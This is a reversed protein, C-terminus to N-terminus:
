HTGWIRPQLSLDLSPAFGGTGIRKSVPAIHFNLNFFIVYIIDAVTTGALLIRTSSKITEMRKLAALTIVNAFIGETCNFLSIFDLKIFPPRNPGHSFLLSFSDMLQFETSVSLESFWCRSMFHGTPIMRPPLEKIIMTFCVPITVTSSTQRTMKSECWQQRWIFYGHPHHVDERSLRIFSFM